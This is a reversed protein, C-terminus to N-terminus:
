VFYLKLYPKWYNLVTPSIRTRSFVFMKPFLSLVNKTTYDKGASSESHILCNFSSYSSNKVLRGIGCLFIIERAKIEGVLKKNLEDIIVRDWSYINISKDNKTLKVEGTIGKLVM